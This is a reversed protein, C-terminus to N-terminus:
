AKPSASPENLKLARAKVQAIAESTFPKLHLGKMGQTFPKFRLGKQNPESLQDDVTWRSGILYVGKVKGSELLRLVESQKAESECCLGRFIQEITLSQWVEFLRVLARHLSRPLTPPQNTLKRASVFVKSYDTSLRIWHIGKLQLGRLAAATISAPFVISDEREQDSSTKYSVGLYPMENGAEIGKIKSLEVVWIHEALAITSAL